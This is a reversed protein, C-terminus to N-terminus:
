GIRILSGARYGRGVIGIRNSLKGFLGSYANAIGRKSIRQKEIEALWNSLNKVQNRSAWKKGAKKLSQFSSARFVVWLLVWFAMFARLTIM